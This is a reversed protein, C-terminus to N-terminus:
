REDEYEEYDDDEYVPKPRPKPRKRGRNARPREDYYEDDYYEDDYYEIQPRRRRTPRYPRRAGGGLYISFFM